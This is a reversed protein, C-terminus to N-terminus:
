IIICKDLFIEVLSVKPAKTAKSEDQPQAKKEASGDLISPLERILLKSGACSLPNQINLYLLGYCFTRIYKSWCSLLHVKPTTIKNIYDFTLTNSILAVRQLSVLYWYPLSSFFCVLLCCWLKLHLEHCVSFAWRRFIAICTFRTGALLNFWLNSFFHDM